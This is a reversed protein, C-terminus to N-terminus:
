EGRDSQREVILQDGKEKERKRRQMREQDRQCRRKREEVKKRDKERM